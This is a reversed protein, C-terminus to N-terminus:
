LGLFKSHTRDYTNSQDQEERSNTGGFLSEHCNLLHASILDRDDLIGTSLAPTATSRRHSPTASACRRAL